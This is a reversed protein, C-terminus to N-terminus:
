PSIKGALYPVLWRRRRNVAPLTVLTRQLALASATAYFDYPPPTAPAPDPSRPATYPASDAALGREALLRGLQRAAAPAPDILETGPGALEAITEGVLPYHTCGLVLTDVEAGIMPELIEILRRRVGAGDGAEILPVLGACDDELVPRDGFYRDRLTRYRRSDLTARTALVGVRGARSAPKVAPEMGVFPVAPYEARLADIAASTATNCAVVVAKAGRGLLWDTVWRSRDRIEAAPRPGYPAYANDAVYLLGETPLAAAVARVVSLGGVGSDFVGVPTFNLNPLPSDANM